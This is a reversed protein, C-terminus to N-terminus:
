KVNGFEGFYDIKRVVRCRCNIIEKAPAGFSRDTPYRMLAGSPSRFPTELGRVQKGNLIAHTDRVRLDHASEWTTIIQDESYNTGEIGQKFSEYESFNLASMAETRGIMNGRFKLLRQTYRNTIKDVYDQTLPKNDKIARRVVSDFRKDRLTRTFYNKDLNQLETKANEVYDAQGTTLGLLGGERVKSIPNLRGVIDLAISRPNRGAQLGRVMAARVMAQTPEIVETILNAAKEALWAEARPNKMDFYTQLLRSAPSKITAIIISGAQFLSGEIAKEYIYFAAPDLKLAVMAKQVDGADLADIVEQLVVQSKIQEVAKLFAESIQGEYEALLADYEKRNM